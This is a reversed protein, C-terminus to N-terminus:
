RQVATVGIEAGSAAKSAVVDFSRTGDTSEAHLQGGNERTARELASKESPAGANVKLEIKFGQKQLQDGYFALVKGFEEATHFSFGYSLQDRTQRTNINELQADPYRPVWAFRTSGESSPAVSPFPKNSATAAPAPMHPAEPRSKRYQVTFIAFALLVASIMVRMLPSIRRQARTPLIKPPPAM